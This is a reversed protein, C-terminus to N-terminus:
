ITESYWVNTSAKVLAGAEPGFEMVDHFEAARTGSMCLLALMLWPCRQM